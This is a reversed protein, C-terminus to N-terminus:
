PQTVITINRDDCDAATFRLAVTDGNLDAAALTIKYWGNAIETVSNACSAFAAVDISRTATVTKGTAASVHDSTLAMTFQFNALQTNKTIRTPLDAKIQTLDTQATSQASATAYSAAVLTRAELQANTPPGFATLAAAAATQAQASSLNNLAAIAALTADDHTAVPTVGRIDNGANDFVVAGVVNWDGGFSVDRALFDATSGGHTVGDALTVDPLSTLGAGATGINDRGAELSDTTQDYTFAVGSKSMLEFFVSGTAPPAAGNIDSDAAMLEDLRIAALAVGAATEIEDTFSSATATGTIAGAAFAGSTIAGSGWATGAAQIVNVGLQAVAPDVTAGDVLVLDASANGSADVAVKRGATVPRLLYGLTLFYTLKITQSDCTIANVHVWYQGGNVWFSADSNDSTDISFGHLGTSGDFDIGDTDLLAYGNDSSRQTVSGNKYVEIDTVALGSITVSAGNSDYTDFPFYITDGANFVPPMTFM